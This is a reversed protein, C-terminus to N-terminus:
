FDIEHSISFKFSKEGDSLECVSEINNHTTKGAIMKAEEYNSIKKREMELQFSKLTYGDPHLIARCECM